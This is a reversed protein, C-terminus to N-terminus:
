QVEGEVRQHARQRVRPKLHRLRMPLGSTFGIGGGIDVHEVEGRGCVQELEVHDPQDTAFTPVRCCGGPRARWQQGVCLEIGNRLERLRAAANERGSIVVADAGAHAPVDRPNAYHSRPESDAIARFRGAEGANSRIERHQRGPSCVGRLRTGHGDVGSMRRGEHPELVLGVGNRLWDDWYRRGMRDKAVVTGVDGDKRIVHMLAVRQVPCGAKVEVVGLGREAISRLIFESTDRSVALKGLDDRGPRNGAATPDIGRRGIVTRDDLRRGRRKLREIREADIVTSIGADSADDGARGEVVVDVDIEGARSIIGTAVDRALDPIIGRLPM